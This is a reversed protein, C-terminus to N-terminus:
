DEDRQTRAVSNEAFRQREREQESISRYVHLGLLGRFEEERAFENENELLVFTVTDRIQRSGSNDDDDDLHTM